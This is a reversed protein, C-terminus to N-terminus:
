ADAQGKRPCWAPRIVAAGDAGNKEISIVRGCFPGADRNMCRFAIKNKPLTEKQQSTCPGCKEVYEPM